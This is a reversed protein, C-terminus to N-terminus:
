KVIKLEPSFRRFLACESFVFAVPFQPPDMIQSFPATIILVCFYEGSALSRAAQGPPVSYSDKGLM